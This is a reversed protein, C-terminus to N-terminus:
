GPLGAKRLQTLYSDNYQACQGRLFHAVSAMTLDPKIELAHALAAKSLGPEGMAAYNAALGLCSWYDHGSQREAAQLWPLAAEHEALMFHAIGLMRDFRYREPDQPSLRIASRLPCLAERARGAFVLAAGLRNSAFALNPNLNLAERLETLCTETEGQLMYSRGLAARAQADYPDISVAREAALKAQRYAEDTIGAWGLAAQQHHVHSLGTYALSFEADLHISREMLLKAETNDVKTKRHLHWLGRQYCEWANLDSTQQRRALQREVLGIQAEFTAVITEAIEDQVSFISEISRDYREAWIQKSTTAEVLQATVRLHEGVVRVSGEVVYGVDLERAVDQLKVSQGNYAFSSRRDIVFLGRFRSLESIIDETMGGAFFDHEPSPSLNEFPLVAISPLNARRNAKAAEARTRIQAPALSREATATKIEAFARETAPDPKIQLERLLINACIEYQRLAATRNGSQHHLQMLRRHADELLPDCELARNLMAIATELDGERAAAEAADRLVECAANHLAARTSLLWEEFTDDPISLGDLFPGTYLAAAQKPQETRLSQFAIIDTDIAGNVLSVIERNSTLLAVGHEAGIKRIQMLANNLSQRAHQADRDSWLLGMLKERAHQEKPHTALYALLARV